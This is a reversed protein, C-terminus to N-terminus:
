CVVCWVVFLVCRVVGCFPCCFCCGVILSCRCCCGVFLMCCDVCLLGDVVFLLMFCRAVVLWRVKICACQAVM